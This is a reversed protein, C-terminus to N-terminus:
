KGRGAPISSFFVNAMMRSTEEVSSRLEPFWPEALLALWCNQPEANGNWSRERRVTLVRNMPHIGMLTRSLILEDIVHMGSDMADNVCCSVATIELGVISPRAITISCASNTDWGTNLVAVIAILILKWCRKGTRRTFSWKM